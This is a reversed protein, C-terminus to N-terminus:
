PVNEYKGRWKVIDRQKFWHIRDVFLFRWNRTSAIWTIPQMTVNTSEVNLLRWSCLLFFLPFFINVISHGKKFLPLTAAYSRLRRIIAASSFFMGPGGFSNIFELYFVIFKMNWAEQLNWTFEVYKYTASGHVLGSQSM